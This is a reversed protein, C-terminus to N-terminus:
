FDEGWAVQLMGGAVDVSKVVAGPVFPVLRRREGVVVLVDNAGTALLDKVRGLEVGEENVVRLGILDSWYYEDRGAKGFAARSVRIDAGILGRAVDRDDIGELHVIVGKGHLAGDLVRLCREGREGVLWPGYQLINEPPDTYSFIRVWGRVGFVGTVRGVVVPRQAPDTM